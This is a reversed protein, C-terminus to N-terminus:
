EVYPRIEEIYKYAINICEQWQARTLRSQAQAIMKSKYEPTMGASVNKAIQTLEDATFNSMVISIVKKKDEYSVMSSMKYNLASDKMVRSIIESNSLKKKEEAPQPTQPENTEEAPEPQTEATQAEEPTNQEEQAVTSFAPKFIFKDFLFDVGLRVGGLVIGVLVVIVVAWIFIKKKM